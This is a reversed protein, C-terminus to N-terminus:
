APPDPPPRNAQDTRVDDIDFDEYRDRDQRPPQEASRRAEGAQGAESEHVKRTDTM